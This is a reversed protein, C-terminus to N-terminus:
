DQGALIIVKETENLSFYLSINLERCTEKFSTEWNGRQRSRVIVVTFSPDEPVKFLYNEVLQDFQDERLENRIWRGLLGEFIAQDAQNYLKEQEFEKLINELSHYLEEKDIPKLLYNSAGLRM